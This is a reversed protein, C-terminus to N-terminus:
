CICTCWFLYCVAFAYIVDPEISALM